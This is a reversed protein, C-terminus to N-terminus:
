GHYVRSANIKGKSIELVEAILLDQEGAVTRIYEMFVRENNATFSTPQYRLTPLREFSDKWWERLAAQGRVWGGTEPQRIKLKPSFHQADEDYLALLAELDHKNFADFWKEAINELVLSEM